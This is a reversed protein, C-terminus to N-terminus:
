RTREDGVRRFVAQLMRPNYFVLRFRTDSRLQNFLRLDDASPQGRLLYRSAQSLDRFEPHGWVIRYARDIVVWKVDPAIPGGAPVLDVPRTLQAGFAPQIWTGFEADIAIRDNPGAARDAVSAARYPDFAVARTGPHAMVWRVYDFPSFADKAGYEFANVTFLLASAVVAISALMASRQELRLMWPAITWGFVIPVIFLAYRPLSITYLGHPLFGVPLMLVFAALAAVTVARRERRRDPAPDRSWFWAFPAALACIAFLFGLHSFYIEYRRWFWSHDAWPVWLAYASRAFPATLLVWPGQWLTPWDGYPAIELVAGNAQRANLLSGEHVLNSVFVAGGLLLFAVIKFIVLRLVLKPNLGKLLFPALCVAVIGAQPKTGIAACATAVIWRSAAVLSAVVFSAIMLDNKHAGSHLLVVPLSAALILIAAVGSSSRNWWREALAGCGAIFYIFFIISIWETHDDVGEWVIPEALLLEYNVPLTRIAGNLDPRHVFGHDRSMFVAKPLHYALADHSVPPLIAGRWLVFLTWCGLPVFAIALWSLQPRRWQPRYLILIVVVALALRAALFPKTLTHTLALIWSTGLWLCLGISAAHCVSEVALASDASWIRRRIADGLIFFIAASLLVIV